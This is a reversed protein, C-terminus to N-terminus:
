SKEKTPKPPPKLRQSWLGGMTSVVAKKARVILCGAMVSVEVVEPEHFGMRDWYWYYGPASPKHESLFVEGKKRKVKGAQSPRPFFPGVVICQRVEKGSEPCVVNGFERALGDEVMENIRPRVYNLDRKGLAHAVERDTMPRDEARMVQFIQERRTGFTGDAKGEEYSKTSNEHIM